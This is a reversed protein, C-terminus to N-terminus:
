KRRERAKRVCLCGGKGTSNRAAFLPHRPDPGLPGTGADLVTAGGEHTVSARDADAAFHPPQVSGVEGVLRTVWRAAVALEASLPLVQRGM